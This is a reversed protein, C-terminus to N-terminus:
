EITIKSIIVPEKPRDDRDTPTAANADVVANAM